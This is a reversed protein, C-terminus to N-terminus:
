LAPAIESGVRHATSEYTVAIVRSARGPESYVVRGRTTIWRVSREGSQLRQQVEFDLGDIIARAVAKELSGKDGPHVQGFFDDYGSAAVTPARGLVRELGEACWFEGTELNREWTGLRAADLALMLRQESEALGRRASEREQVVVVILLATALFIVLRLWDWPSSVRMSRDPSLFWIGTLTSLLIALLAGRWGDAAVSVGVSAILLVFLGRQALAPVTSAIVAVAGVSVIPV